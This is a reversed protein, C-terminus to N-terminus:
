GHAAEHALEAPEPQVFDYLEILESLPTTWKADSVERFPFRSLEDLAKLPSGATLDGTAMLREKIQLAEFQAQMVGEFLVPYLAQLKTRPVDARKLAQIREILKFAETATYPRETLTIGAQTQYEKRREKVKESGASHLVMFDLTGELRNSEAAKRKALKMLEGALGMLQSAPYSAHAIVVGASTTLGKQAFFDPLKGQKKWEDQLTFTKAQYLSIFCAAVELAAHAPVVLILDDGGALVFETPVFRAPKGDRTAKAITGVHQLVARVAAERTAQDVIKSFARYAQKALADDPFNRGMDKITEGMRNGDAYVFGIYNSPKSHEAIQDLDQPLLFRGEKDCDSKITESLTTLIFDPWENRLRNLAPIPIDIRKTDNYFKQVKKRKYLCSACLHHTGQIDPKIAHAAEKGCSSCPRIWRGALMPVAEIRGLKNERSERVGRAIWDPFSEDQGDKNKRRELAVVSVRANATKERYLERVRQAFEEAKDKSEFLIRGSGGGLYIEESCGKYDELLKRTESRNLQDLLLSAGRTERLISSAFLYGKVRQTEIM